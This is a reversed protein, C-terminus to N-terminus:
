PRVEERFWSGTELTYVPEGLSAFDIKNLDNEGRADFVDVKDSAFEGDSFDTKLKGSSYTRSVRVVYRHGSGKGADLSAIMWVEGSGRNEDTQCKSIHNEANDMSAMADSLDELSPSAAATEAANSALMVSENLRRADISRERCTVLFATVVIIVMILSLTLVSFEIIFVAKRNREAKMM